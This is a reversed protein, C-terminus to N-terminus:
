KEVIIAELDSIKTNLTQHCIKQDEITSDLSKTRKLLDEKDAMLTSVKTELLSVM